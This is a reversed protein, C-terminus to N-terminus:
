HCSMHCSVSIIQIFYNLLISNKFFYNLKLLSCSAVAGLWFFYISSNCHNQFKLYFGDLGSCGAVKLLYHAEYSASCSKLAVIIHIGELYTKWAPAWPCFNLGTSSQRIHGIRQYLLGKKWWMLVSWAIKWLNLVSKTYLIPLSRRQQRSIAPNAHPQM